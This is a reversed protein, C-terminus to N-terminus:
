NCSNQVSRMIKDDNTAEIHHDPEVILFEDSNWDGDVFHKLLSPDGKIEDYQWGLWEACQRTYAKCFDTNGVPLDVYAATSYKNFWDQEMEMLFKANDEGYKKRYEEFTKEYREKGPPLHNEIWGPTYWYTGPHADFYEKYRKKSGLFCTICDHGRPIVLRIQRAFIGEVGKSCLGYGLLIADFTDPTDDVAKQVELRIEGPDRHLGWPLYKFEFKNFSIAAYHCLERWMVNCAIIKLNLTKM